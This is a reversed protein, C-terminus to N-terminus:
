PVQWPAMRDYAFTMQEPLYESFRAAHGDAFLLNLGGDHQPEWYTDGGTTMDLGELGVCNQTYDDKDADHLDFYHRNLDGGVIYASAKLVRDSRVAAFQHGAEIFAANAGLFYHYPSEEPYQPCGSYFPEKEASDTNKTRIYKDLQEMWSPQHTTADTDGWIIFAGAIPYFGNHDIQFAGHGTGIQRVNSLCSVAGAARRATALAPLLLGILVAIIGIVVLLEILTFGRRM